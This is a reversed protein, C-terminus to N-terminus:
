RMCFEKYKQLAVKEGWMKVMIQYVQPDEIVYSDPIDKMASIVDKDIKRGVEEKFINLFMYIAKIVNEAEVICWWSNNFPFINYYRDKFHRDKAIEYQELLPKADPDDVSLVHFWGNVGNNYCDIIFQGKSM